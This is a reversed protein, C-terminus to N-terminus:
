NTDTRNIIMYLIPWLEKNCYNPLSFLESWINFQLPM